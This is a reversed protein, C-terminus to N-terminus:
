GGVIRPATARELWPVLANMSLVAFAIGDPYAGVGRMAFVLLGVGAGFIWQGLRTTPATVPDTVIFFAALMTGGAALHALPPLFRDPDGGHALAATLYLAGLMALAIRWAIVRRWLLWLGGCLFGLNMWQWARAGTRGNWPADALESLMRM